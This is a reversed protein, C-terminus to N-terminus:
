KLMVKKGNVVYIQGRKLNSTDGDINVLRGGLDYVKAGALKDASIGDIDNVPEKELDFDVEKDEAFPMVDVLKTYYGELKAGLTAQVSPDAIMMEYKGNEDTNITVTYESGISYSMEVGALPEKTNLDRVVGYIKKAVTELAFNQEVDATLANIEAEADVFSEAKVTLKYDADLLRLKFGYIGEASTKVTAMVKGAADKLTVEADAVISNDRASTIKGSIKAAKRLTVDRVTGEEVKGIQVSKLEYDKTADVEMVYDELQIQKVNIEYKGDDGTTCNYLVDGSKLRVSAGKVPQSTQADTITGSMKNGVKVTFYAVPTRNKTNTGLEEPTAHDNKNTFCTYYNEDIAFQCGGVWGPSTKEFIIRVSHVGDFVIPNETLDLEIETLAPTSNTAGEPAINEYTKDVIVHTMMEKAATKEEPTVSKINAPDGDSTGLWANLTFNINNKPISAWMKYKIKTITGGVAVGYAKLMDPTYYIDSVSNNYYMNLPTDTTKTTSDCVQILGGANEAEIVIDMTETAATNGGQVFEIYAPFTGEVHPTFSFAFNASTGKKVEVAEAVAVAENNVYLKATYTGAAFDETTYNTAKATANYKFNVMGKMPMDAKEMFFGKAPQLELNKNEVSGGSMDINEKSPTYGEAVAKLEYALSPKMITMSYKGESDTTTGYLVDGATATVAAGNIPRDTDKDTVIGSLKPAEAEIGFYVVPLIVPTSSFTSTSAIVWSATELDGNDIGRRISKKTECISYDIGFSMNYNEVSSRVSIVINGGQYVYPESLNLTILDEHADTTQTKNPTVEGDFVKTLTANDVPTLPNAFESLETKGIYVQLNIPVDNMSTNRGRYTISTIKSGPAIGNLDSPLYVSQAESKKYYTGVPAHYSNGQAPGGVEIVSSFIEESIKVNMTESSIEYGDAFVFKVVADFEGAMHPTVDFNFDTKGGSAISTGPIEKVVKENFLVKVVYDTANETKALMNQANVSVTMKENVVGENPMSAKIYIEHPLDVRKPAIINDVFVPKNNGAEFAVYYQGTPINGITYRLFEYGYKPANKESFKDEAPTGEATSLTRLLTWDKRNASYYVKLEGDKSYYRAAEFSLNDGSTFDLLPTIMKFPGQAKPSVYTKMFANRENGPYGADSTNKTMWGYEYYGDKISEVIMGITSDDTEFDVFYKDTGVIVARLKLTFDGANSKILLDGEKMGATETTAINFKVSKHPEINQATLTTTFGEPETVSQIELPAGGDNLAMVDQTLASLSAGLYMEDGSSYTKTSNGTKTQLKIIPVYPVVKVNKTSKYTGSINEYIRFSIGNTEAAPYDDKDLTATLTLEGSTAKMALDEDVPVTVIHVHDAKDAGGGANYKYLSVSYNETGKAFDFDGNNTVTTTFTVKFKGEADADILQDTNPMVDNVKLSAMKKFNATTATFDDVYCYVMRIGIYTYNKLEPLTYTVFDNTNPLMLSKADLLIGKEWKDGNKQMTYFEIFGNTVVKKMKITVTGKVLPTVLFDWINVYDEAYSDYVAGAGAQLCGTNDIGGTTNYTYPVYTPVNGYGINEVGVMHGWGLSVLFDRNEAGHANSNTTIPTNFDVKYDNVVDDQANVCLSALLGFFMLLCVKLNRM